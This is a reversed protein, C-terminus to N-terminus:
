DAGGKEDYKYIHKSRKIDKTMPKGSNVFGVRGNVEDPSKFMSSEGPRKAKSFKSTKLGKNAFQQWKNKSADLAAKKNEKPPKLAPETSLVSVASPEPVKRKLENVYPRICSKPMTDSSAHDFFKVTFMPQSSSGTIGTIRAKHYQKDGSLWRALVIGGTQYSESTYSPPPPPPPPHASNHAPPPPPVSSRSPRSPPPPPRSTPSASASSRSSPTIPSITRIPTKSATRDNHSSQLHQKSHRNTSTNSGSPKDVDGFADMLLAILDTLEAKLTLLSENQPDSELSEVVSALQFKYEELERRDM